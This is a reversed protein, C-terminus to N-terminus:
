RSSVTGQDLHVNLHPYSMELGRQDFIVKIQETVALKADFFRPTQVWLRLLYSIDSANYGSVATLVPENPLLGPATQAADYLAQKVAEMRSDYSATVTIEVMRKPEASYNIITSEAITSNPVHIQRNDYTSIDTYFLGVARVTGSVAGCEIFDGVDFPKATLLMVGGVLNSLTGQVALSVALSAVGLVAVLSTVDVGLTSAAIMVSLSVLFVKLLRRLFLQLTENLRSRKAGRRMLRLIMRTMLLCLLLVVVSALLRSLSLGGFLRQALSDFTGTVTESVEKGVELGAELQDELEM